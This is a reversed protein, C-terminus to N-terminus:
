LHSKKKKKSDQWCQVAATLLHPGLPANIKRHLLWLGQLTSTVDADMIAQPQVGLTSVRATARPLRRDTCSVRPVNEGPLSLM